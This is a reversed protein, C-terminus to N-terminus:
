AAAQAEKPPRGRRPKEKVMEVLEAIQAQLEDMKASQAAIQADKEELAKTVASKDQATLFRKANDILDFLGPIGLRQRHTDTLKSIEEVTNIGNMRFIEAQETTVGNWAALPTGNLPASKGAKWAEYRPRIANWRLHAMMVAPNQAARGEMPLVAALRSVKETVLTFQASGVPGYAVWDEERLNGTPEFSEIEKGNVFKVSRKVEPKYETWFKKVYIMPQEM